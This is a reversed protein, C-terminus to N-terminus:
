EIVLECILSGDANYYKYIICCEEVGTVEREYGLASEKFEETMNETLIEKVEEADQQIAFYYSYTATNDVVDFEVDAFLGESEEVVQSMKDEMVASVASNSYFEEMTKAEEYDDMSQMGDSYYDSSVTKEFLVTGDGNYYIYTAEVEDVGCLKRISEATSAIVEDNLQEDMFINFLEIDSGSITTIYQFWYTIHNDEIEYGADAYTDPYNELTEQINENLLQQMVPASLVEEVTLGSFVTEEEEESEDTDIDVVLDDMDLEFYDEEVEEEVLDFCEEELREEEWESNLVTAHGDDPSPGSTSIEYSFNCAAMSMTFISLTVLIIARKKM